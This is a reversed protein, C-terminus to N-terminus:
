TSHYDTARREPLQWDATAASSATFFEAGAPIPFDPFSSEAGDEWPRMRRGPSGEGPTFLIRARLRM